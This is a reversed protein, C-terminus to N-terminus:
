SPGSAADRSVHVTHTLAQRRYYRSNMKREITGPYGCPDREVISHVPHDRADSLSLAMRKRILCIGAVFDNVVHVGRESQRRQEEEGSSREGCCQVVNMAHLAESAARVRRAHVNRRQFTTVFDRGQSEIM